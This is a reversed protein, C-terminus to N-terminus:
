LARIIKALARVASDAEGAPLNAYGLALGNLHMAPAGPDCYRSLPTIDIGRELAHKAVDTDRLPVDLRATLHMGGADGSVTVLDGMHLLLAEHLAARREAYLRKMRRLHRIYAGSGIFDALAIQDAVRAHRGMASMVDHTRAIFAEPVVMFGIRLGPFLTKSFTGVYFVTAPDALGQMSPVPAGRHRFESDYDDEIIHAGLAKAREIMSVRRELSLVSGLPYQHSPTVYILRPPHTEWHSSTPAMGDADVPIPVITLNAASFAARAGHYGPNELWVTDGAKTLMRACADLSTRTGDTVIIQQVGCRVGRVLTLYAAIAHRLSPHGEVGPMGLEAPAMTRWVRAVSARWRAIPFEALAPVGIRFVRSVTANGRRDLVPGPLAPTREVGASIKVGWEAVITGQRGTHLFGEDALREYAHLVSNRAIRLEEALVRSAHLRMGPQIAGSLVGERLAEYLMHQQSVKRGSNRHKYSSVLLAFDM